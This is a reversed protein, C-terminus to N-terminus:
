RSLGEHGILIIVRARIFVLQVLLAITSELMGNTRVFYLRSSKDM